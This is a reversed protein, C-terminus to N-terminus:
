GARTEISSVLGERFSYVIKVPGMPSMAKSLIEGDEVVPEGPKAGMNAFMKLTAGVASKGKQPGMPTTMAVDDTMTSLMAEVDGALMADVLKAATEQDNMRTEGQQLTEPLGIVLIESTKAGGELVDSEGAAVEVAFRMGLAKDTERMRADGSVVFLLRTRSDEAEVPYTAGPELRIFGLSLGRENFTGLRKEYVGPNDRVARYTFAAPRMIVPGEFRPTAYVAKQGTAHEWIAEVSDKDAPAETLPDPGKYRGGEFRGGLEKLAHVGRRMESQSLYRQGSAGECQLLLTLSPGRAHQEYPTSESFYGITGEVQDQPGFNFAGELMFRVQEFNHHHPPTDYADEVRILTLWYNDPGGERGTLVDRLFIGGERHGPGTHWQLEDSDVVQM